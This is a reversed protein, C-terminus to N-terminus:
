HKLRGFMFEIRFRRKYRRRDYKKPAKRAKRGPICPEIEKDQLSSRVWDADYGRETILGNAEPRHMLLVDAGTYDSVEDASMFFTSARGKIARLSSATRHAKLFTADIMITKTATGEAALGAMIRAFV